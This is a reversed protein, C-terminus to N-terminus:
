PYIVKLNFGDIFKYIGLYLIGLIIQVIISYPSSLFTSVSVLIILFFILSIYTWSRTTIEVVQGEKVILENSQVGLQSVSLKAEAAPLDLEIQKNRKITAVKEDNVYVKIKSGAGSIGTNRKIRVLFICRRM